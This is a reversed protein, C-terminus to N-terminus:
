EEESDGGDEDERTRDYTRLRDNLATINAAPVIIELTPLLEIVQDVNGSRITGGGAARVLKLTQCTRLAEFLSSRKRVIQGPFFEAYRQVIASVEVVPYRTLGVELRELKEAYMLRLLLLWVTTERNLRRRHAGDRHVVHFAGLREEHRLEWGAVALYDAVLQRRRQLFSYFRREDEQERWILGDSLLRRVTEAFQTQESSSLESYEQAFTVLTM